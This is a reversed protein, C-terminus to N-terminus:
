RILLPRFRDLARIRSHTAAAQLTLAMAERAHRWMKRDCADPPISDWRVPVARSARVASWTATVSFRLLSM